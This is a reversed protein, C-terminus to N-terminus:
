FKPKSDGSSDETINQLFNSVSGKDRLVRKGRLDNGLLYYKKAVYDKMKALLEYLYSPLFDFIFIHSIKKYRNYSFNLKHILEHIKIDGKHFLSSVFDLRRVKLEFLKSALLLCIASFSVFFTTIM